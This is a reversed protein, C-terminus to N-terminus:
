LRLLLNAPTNSKLNGNRTGTEDGINFSSTLSDDCFATTFNEITPLKGLNAM